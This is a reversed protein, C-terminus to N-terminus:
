IARNFGLSYAADIGANVVNAILQADCELKATGIETVGLFVTKGEVRVKEIEAKIDTM